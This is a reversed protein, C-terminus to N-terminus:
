LLIYYTLNLNLILYSLLYYFVEFWRPYILRDKYKDWKTEIRIKHNSTNIANFIPQISKVLKIKEEKDKTDICLPYANVGM